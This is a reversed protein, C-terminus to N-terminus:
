IKRRYIFVLAARQISSLFIALMTVRIHVRFFEKRANTLFKEESEGKIVRRSEAERLRSARSAAKSKQQRPHSEKTSGAARANFSIGAREVEGM